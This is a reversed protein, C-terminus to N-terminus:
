AQGTSQIALGMESTSVLALKLMVSMSRASCMKACRLLLARVVQRSLFRVSSGITALSRSGASKRTQNACAASGHDGRLSVM